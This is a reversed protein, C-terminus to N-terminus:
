KIVAAYYTSLRQYDKLFDIISTVRHEGPKMIIGVHVKQLWDYGVGTARAIQTLTLDTTDLYYIFDQWRKLYYDSNNRARLREIGQAKVRRKWERSRKKKLPIGRIKLDANLEDITKTRPM